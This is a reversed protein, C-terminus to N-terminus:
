NWFRDVTHSHLQTNQAMGHVSTDLNSIHHNKILISTPVLTKITCVMGFCSHINQYLCLSLERNGTVKEPKRVNGSNKLFFLKSFCDSINKHNTMNKTIFFYQQYSKKLVTNGLPPSDTLQKWPNLVGADRNIESTVTRLPRLLMLTASFVSSELDVHSITLM